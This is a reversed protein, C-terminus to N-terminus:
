AYETNHGSGRASPPSKALRAADRQEAQALRDMFDPSAMYAEDEIRAFEPQLIAAEAALEKKRAEARELPDMSETSSTMGPRQFGLGNLLLAEGTPNQSALTPSVAGDHNWEKVQIIANVELGSNSEIGNITM